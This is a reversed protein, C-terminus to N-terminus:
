EPRRRMRLYRTRLWEVWIPITLFPVLVFPLVLIAAVINWPPPPDVLRLLYGGAGQSGILLGGAILVWPAAREIGRAPVMAALLIAIAGTGLFVSAAVTGSADGILGELWAEGFTSVCLAATFLISFVWSATRLRRARDSPYTIQQVPKGTVAPDFVAELPEGTDPHLVAALDVDRKGAELMRAHVARVLADTEPAFAECTWGRLDAIQRHSWSGVAPTDDLRVPVLTNALEAIRAEAQVWKSAASGSSWCVVVASAALLESLIRDSFVEGALLSDDWWVSFGHARFAEALAKAVGRDARQYSIFIDAM